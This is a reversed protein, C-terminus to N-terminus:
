PLLELLVLISLFKLGDMCMSRIVTYPVVEMRWGVMEVLFILILLAEVWHDELLIRVKRIRM